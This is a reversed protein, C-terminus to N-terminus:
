VSVMEGADAGTDLCGQVVRSTQQGEMGTGAKQSADEIDKVTLAGGPGRDGQAGAGQLGQKRRCFAAAGFSIEGGAESQSGNCTSQLCVSPGKSAQPQLVRFSM